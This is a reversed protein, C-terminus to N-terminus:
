EEGEDIARWWWHSTPIEPIVGDDGVVWRAMADTPTKSNHKIGFAANFDGANARWHADVTDLEGRQADTLQERVFELASRYHLIDDWEIYFEPSGLTDYTPLYRPIIEADEVGIIAAGITLQFAM